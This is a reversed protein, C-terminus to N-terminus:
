SVVAKIEELLFSILSTSIVIVNLLNGSLKGDLKSSQIYAGYSNEVRFCNEKYISHWVRHASKGKYGTYREPNLTLDVYESDESEENNVCFNDQSDDYAKWLEFEEYSAKSFFLFFIVVM